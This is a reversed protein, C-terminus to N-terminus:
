LVVAEDVKMAETFQSELVKLEAEHEAQERAMGEEDALTAHIDALFGDLLKGTDKDNYNMPMILTAASLHGYDDFCSVVAPESASYASIYVSKADPSISERLFKASLIPLKNTAKEAMGPKWCVDLMSRVPPLDVEFGYDNVPFIIADRPVRAISARCGDTRILFKGGVMLTRGTIRARRSDPEAEKDVVKDFWKGIRSFWQMDSKNM